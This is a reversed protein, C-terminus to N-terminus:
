QTHTLIHTHPPPHNPYKCMQALACETDNSCMFTSDRFTCDATCCPGQEPSFSFFFILWCKREGERERERGMKGKRERERGGERGERKRREREREREREGDRRRKIERERETEGGGTGVSGVQVGHQHCGQM